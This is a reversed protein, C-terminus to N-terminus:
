CINMLRYKINQPSEVIQQNNARKRFASTYCSEIRTQKYEVDINENLSKM